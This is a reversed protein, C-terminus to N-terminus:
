LGRQRATEDLLDIAANIETSVDAPTKAIMDNFYGVSANRHRDRISFKVANWAIDEASGHDMDTKGMVKAMAGAINWAEAQAHLPHCEYRGDGVANIGQVWAGSHLLRSVATLIARAHSFKAATTGAPAVRYLALRLVVAERTIPASDGAPMNDDRREIRPPAAVVIENSDKM